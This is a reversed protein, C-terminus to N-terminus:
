FSTPRRWSLHSWNSIVIALDAPCAAGDFRALDRDGFDRVAFDLLPLFDELVARTFGGTLRGHVFIAVDVMVGLLKQRETFFQTLAVSGEPFNALDGFADCGPFLDIFLVLHHEIPIAGARVFLGRAYGDQNYISQHISGINGVELLITGSNLAQKFLTQIDIENVPSVRVM